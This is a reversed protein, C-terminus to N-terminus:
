QDLYNAIYFVMGVMSDTDHRDQLFQGHRRHRCYHLRRYCHAIVAAVATATTATAANAAAIVFVNAAIAIAPSVPLLLGFAASSSIALVVIVVPSSPLSL